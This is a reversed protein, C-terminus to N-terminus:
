SATMNTEQVVAVHGALESLFRENDTPALLLVGQIQRSFGASDASLLIIGEQPHKQATLVEWSLPIHEPVKIQEAQRIEHFRFFLRYDVHGPAWRIGIGQDTVIYTVPRGLLIADKYLLMFGVFLFFWQLGRIGIQGNLLGGLLGSGLCLLVLNRIQIMRAVHPHDIYPSEERSSFERRIKNEWAREQWVMMGLGLLVVATFIGSVLPPWAWFFVVFVWAYPIKKLFLYPIDLIFQELPKM